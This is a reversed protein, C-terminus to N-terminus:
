TKRKSKGGFKKRWRCGDMVMQDILIQRGAAHRLEATANSHLTHGVVAVWTECGTEGAVRLAPVFDNDNSVLVLKQSVGLLADRVLAVAIEVDTKKERNVTNTAGCSWCRAHEPANRGRLLDVLPRSQDSVKLDKLRNLANKQEAALKDDPGKNTYPATCYIVKDIM